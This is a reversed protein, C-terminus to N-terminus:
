LWSNKLGCQLTAGSPTITSKFIFLYIFSYFLFLIFYHLYFQKM